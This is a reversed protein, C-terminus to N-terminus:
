LNKTATNECIYSKYTYMGEVEGLHDILCNELPIKKLYAEEIYQRINLKASRVFREYSQYKNFKEKIEKICTTYVKQAELKDDSRFVLNGSYYVCYELTYVDLEVFIKVQGIPNLYEELIFLKQVTKSVRKKFVAMSTCMNVLELINSDM